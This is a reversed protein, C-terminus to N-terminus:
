NEHWAPVTVSGGAAGPPGPARTGAQRWRRATTATRTVPIDAVPFDVASASSARRPRRTTSVSVPPYAAPTHDAVSPRGCSSHRSSRM